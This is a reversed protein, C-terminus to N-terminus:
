FAGGAGIGAAGRGVWPTLWAASGTAGSAPRSAPWLLWTAVAGVAAVGAGVYLIRSLEADRNEADVADSINACLTAGADPCPTSGRQANLSRAKSAESSSHAGLYIATGLAGLAVVGLTGAVIARAPSHGSPAEPTPQVPPPVEVRAPSTDATSPVARKPATAEAPAEFSVTVDQGAVAQVSHTAQWGNTAMVSHTGPMVDVPQSWDAVPQGDITIATGAPAQVRVHGLQGHLEELRKRAEDAHGAFTADKLCANFDREAGLLDGTLQESRAMNFLIKPNPYLAYAQRYELLAERDKDHDHLQVGRRFHREAEARARADQAAVPPALLAAALAVSLATAVHAMRKARLM